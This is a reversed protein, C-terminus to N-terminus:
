IKATCKRIPLKRLIVKQVGDNALIIKSNRFIECVQKVAEEENPNEDNLKRGALWYRYRAKM